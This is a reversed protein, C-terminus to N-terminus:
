ATTYSDKSLFFKYFKHYKIKNNIKIPLIDCYPPTEHWRLLLLGKEMLPWFIPFFVCINSNKIDPHLFIYISFCSGRFFYRYMLRQGPSSHPGFKYQTLYCTNCTAYSYGLIKYLKFCKLVIIDDFDANWYLDVQYLSVLM